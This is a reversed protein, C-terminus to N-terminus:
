RKKKAIMSLYAVIEDREKRYLAVVQVAPAPKQPDHPPKSPLLEKVLECLGNAVFSPDAPDNLNSILKEIQEHLEAIHRASTQLSVDGLEERIQSLRDISNKLSGVVGTRAEARITNDHRSRTMFLSESVVCEALRKADGALFNVGDRFSGYQGIAIYLAGAITLYVKLSGEKFEVDTAVEEYLFFQGRSTIFAQLHRRLEELQAKTEKVPEIHIYAQCLINRDIYDAMRIGQRQHAWSWGKVDRVGGGHLNTRGGEKTLYMSGFFIGAVYAASVRLAAPKV